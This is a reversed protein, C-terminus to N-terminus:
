EGKNYKKYLETYIVSMHEHQETIVDHVFASQSKRREYHERVLLPSAYERYEYPIVTISADIFDTGKMELSPLEANVVSFLNKRNGTFYVTDGTEFPHPYKVYRDGINSHVTKKGSIALAEIIELKEIYLEAIRRENRPKQKDIVQIYWEKNKRLFKMARRIGNFICIRGNMCDEYEFAYRPSNIYEKVKEHMCIIDELQKRTSKDLKEGLLLRFFDSKQFIDKDSQYVTTIMNEASPTWSGENIMQSLYDRMTKSPIFSIFERQLETM